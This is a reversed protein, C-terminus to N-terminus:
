DNENIDRGAIKSNNGMNNDKIKTKTNSNDTSKNYIKTVKNLTFCSILLGLISCIGSIINFVDM